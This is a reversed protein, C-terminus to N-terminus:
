HHLTYSVETYRTLASHGPLEQPGRPRDRMNDSESEARDRDSCTDSCTGHPWHHSVREVCSAASAARVTERVNEVDSRTGSTQVRSM